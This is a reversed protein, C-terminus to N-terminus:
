TVRGIRRSCACKGNALDITLGRVHEREDEQDAFPTLRAATAIQERPM